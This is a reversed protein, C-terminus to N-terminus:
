LTMHSGLAQTPALPMLVKCVAKHLKGVVKLSLSGQAQICCALVTGHEQEDQSVHQRSM